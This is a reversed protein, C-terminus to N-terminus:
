HIPFYLSFLSYNLGQVLGRYASLCGTLDGNNEQFNLDYSECIIFDDLFLQRSILIERYKSMDNSELQKSM